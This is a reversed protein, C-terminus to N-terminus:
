YCSQPNATTIDAGRMGPGCRGGQNSGGGLLTNLLFQEMASGGNRTGNNSPRNNRTNQRPPNPKSSQYTQGSYQSEYQASSPPNYEYKSFSGGSTPKDIIRSQTPKNATVEDKGPAFNMLNYQNIVSKEGTISNDNKTFGLLSMASDFYKGADEHAQKVPEWDDITKYGNARAAQEREAAAQGYTDFNRVATEAQFKASDIIETARGITGAATAGCTSPGYACGVGVVVGAAPYVVAGTVFDAAGRAIVVHPVNQYAPERSELEAGIVAGVGGLGKLTARVAPKFSRVEAGVSVMSLSDEFADAFTETCLTNFILLILSNALFAKRM